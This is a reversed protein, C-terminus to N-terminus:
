ENETLNLQHLLSVFDELDQEFRDGDVEFEAPIKQLIQESTKGSKLLELIRLGVPNASYSDGTAANFIFGSESLAVNKRLRM